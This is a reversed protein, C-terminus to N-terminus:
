AQPLIEQIEFFNSGEFGATGNHIMGRDTEETSFQYLMQADVACIFTKSISVNILSSPSATSARNGAHAINTGNQVFYLRAYKQDNIGTLPAYAGSLKYKGPRRVNFRDNTLDCLNGQNIPANNWNPTTQTAATNTTLSTTILEMQGICPIRGDHLVVWNTADTALFTVQEGTIFLRSWETATSGGNITINTDGKLILEYADNGTIIKIDIIQGAIGAPLKFNRDATLGSLNVLHRTNAVATIDATTPSLSLNAQFNEVEFDITGDSDQYTVAIGYESNTTLMAGIIDQIQEETFGGSAWDWTNGNYTGLEDTDVAYAIAGKSIGLLVEINAKIDTYPPLPESPNPFQQSSFGRFGINM